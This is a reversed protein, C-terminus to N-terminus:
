PNEKIHKEVDLLKQYNKAANELFTDVLVPFDEQRISAKQYYFQELTTTRREGPWSEKTYEIKKKRSATYFPKNAMAVGFDFDMVIKVAKLTYRRLGAATPNNLAAVEQKIKELKEIFGRNLLLTLLTGPQPFEKKDFDFKEGFVVVGDSWCIFRDKQHAESLFAAKSLFTASMLPFNDTSMAVDNETGTNMIFYMNVDSSGAVFEGRACSGVLYVSYLEDGFAQKGVEIFDDILEKLDPRIKSVDAENRIDMSSLFEIYGNIIDASDEPKVPIKFYEVLKEAVQQLNAEIEKITSEQKNVTEERWKAFAKEGVEALKQRGFESLFVSTAPNSMQRSMKVKQFDENLRLTSVFHHHQTRKDLAVAIGGSNWQQLLEFIGIKKLEEGNKDMFPQYKIKRPDKKQSDPVNEPVLLLLAVLRFLKDKIQHVQDLFIGNYYNIIEEPEYVKEEVKKQEKVEALLVTTLKAESIVRELESSYEQRRQVVKRNTTIRGIPTYGPEEVEKKINLILLGTTLQSLKSIELLPKAEPIVEKKTKKAGTM